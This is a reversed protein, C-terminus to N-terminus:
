KRIEDLIAQFTVDTEKSGSPGCPGRQGSAPHYKVFKVVGEKEGFLLLRCDNGDTIYPFLIFPLDDLKEFQIFKEIGLDVLVNKEVKGIKEMVDRLSLIEDGIPSFCSFPDVYIEYTENLNHYQFISDSIQSIEIYKRGSSDVRRIHRLYKEATPFDYFYIFEDYYPVEAQFFSKDLLRDLVKGFTEVNEDYEGILGRAGLHVHYEEFSIIGRIEGIVLLRSERVDQFSSIYPHIFQPLDDPEDFGIYQKQKMDLLYNNRPPLKTIESIASKLGNIEEQTPIFANFSDLIIEFEKEGIRTYFRDNRPSPLSM